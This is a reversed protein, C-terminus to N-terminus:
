ALVSDELEGLRLDGALVPPVGIARGAFGGHCDSGGTILLDRSRCYELYGRTTARDHHFSFCELGEVGMEVLLDLREVDMGNNLSAGPHALVVVGSAQRVCEVVEDVSPFEAQPHEIEEFMRFYDHVDRCIGQDILYNLGKWGGRRRDWVYRAYDDLSVRHGVDALLRVADDSSGILRANNASVLDKLIPSELDFGYALLHYVQGSLRSSLEVGPLFRLGSGRVRDATEALSGLSDHDTVAFLGIGARRVEDVLQQPPWRGDSATTHLHLDVRLNM